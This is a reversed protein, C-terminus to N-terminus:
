DGNYRNEHRRRHGCSKGAASKFTAYGENRSVNSFHRGCRDFGSSRFLAVDDVVDVALPVLEAAAIALIDAFPRLAVTDGESVSM